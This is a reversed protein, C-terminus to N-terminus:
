KERYSILDYRKLIEYLISYEQNILNLEGIYNNDKGKECDYVLYCAQNNIYIKQMYCESYDGLCLDLQEICKMDDKIKEKQKKDRGKEILRILENIIIQKTELIKKDEDTITLSQELVNIKHLLLGKEYEDVLYKYSGSKGRVIYRLLVTVAFAFMTALVGIGCLVSGNKDQLLQYMVSALISIVLSYFCTILNEYLSHRASLFDLRAFLRGIEHKSVLEDVKGNKQYYFNIIQINKVYCEESEM